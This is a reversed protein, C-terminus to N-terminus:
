RYDVSWYTDIHDCTLPTVLPVTNVWNSHSQTLRNDYLRNECSIGSNKAVSVNEMTAPETRRM